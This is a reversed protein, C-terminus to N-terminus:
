NGVFEYFSKTIDAGTRILINKSVREYGTKDDNTLFPAYTMAQLFMWYDDKSDDEVSIKYKVVGCKFKYVWWYGSKDKFWKKKFGLDKLTQKIQKKMDIPEILKYKEM